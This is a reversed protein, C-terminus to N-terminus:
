HASSLAEAVALAGMAGSRSLRGVTRIFSDRGDAVYPLSHPVAHCSLALAPLPAAKYLLPGSHAPLLSRGTSSLLTRIGTQRVASSTGALM